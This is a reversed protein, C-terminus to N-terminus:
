NNIRIDSVACQDGTLAVYIEGPANELKTDNRVSVGLNETTFFIENGSRTISVSADFGKKNSEKWADWGTFGENVKTVLTNKAGAYTDASEGDLRILAYERYGKSGIKGDNSTYILFYPCHWVLRATPLSMSHFTINMKESLKIGQSYATRHGDIQVNPIDGEPGDIYSIEEAIRDIYGEDVENEDKIISVDSIRCDRGTMGIYAFRSSDPLAVTIVTSKENDDIMIRVHDKFKVAEIDYTGKPRQGPALAASSTEIVRAGKNVAGGELNIECYEYYVLERVTKEDEHYRGDLSDFLILSAGAGDSVGNVVRMHIRTINKTLLIGDSVDSRYESCELESRGGLESVISHERMTYEPDADILEQMIVAIQPDFQTGAGKVIEERVIQQPLTNRYSRNSSMADYADAVAIIRAIENIDEGKLGEPYGKGDYREHHPLAGISLYPYEDISKLIANGKVPHEKIVDYEEPTLKGRKNIIANPIGIKGVDHLLASYYIKRCEEEDKGLIRAIMESYDAVRISHGHSYADKADIANVLATATQEFLRRSVRQQERLHDVEDKQYRVIKKNRRYILIIAAITFANSFLGTLPAVNGGRIYSMIMMPYQVLLLILAIIFGPKRFFVVLFIICINSLSSLVGTFMSIPIQGGMFPITEHSRAIIAIFGSAAAYTILVLIMYVTRKTIGKKKNNDM